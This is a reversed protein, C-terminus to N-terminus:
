HGGSGSMADAFTTLSPVLLVLLALCVVVITLALRLRRPNSLLGYIVALLWNIFSALQNKM